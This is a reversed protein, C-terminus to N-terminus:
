VLMLLHRAVYLSTIEITRQLLVSQLKIRNICALHLERDLRLVNSKFRLIIIIITIIICISLNFCCTGLRVDDVCGFAVEVALASIFM